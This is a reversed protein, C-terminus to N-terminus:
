LRKVSISLDSIVAILINIAVIIFPYVKFWNKKGILWKYKILVFGVSGIDVAYLKGYHFWSNMHVYTGNTKAWNQGAATCIYISIFYITLIISIIIFSIIGGYKSRRAFENSLILGIFVLFLGLFQYLSNEGYVNFFM